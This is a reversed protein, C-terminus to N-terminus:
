RKGGGHESRCRGFFGNAETSAMMGGAIEFYDASSFDADEAPDTMLDIERVEAGRCGSMLAMCVALMIIGKM